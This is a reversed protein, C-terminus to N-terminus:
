GLLDYGRLGEELLELAEQGRAQVDSAIQLLDPSAELMRRRVFAILSAHLGLLARATVTPRLDGPQAGTEHAILTSLADAYRNLIELERAQLAPSAAIMGSVETLARATESDESALAGRVELVFAGFARAVSTGQPREAVARLMEAEFREMGEYVLDEKTPFYNYVTAESVEAANAVESVPVAEFSREAFLRRATEAILNRTRQKKRERLGHPAGM